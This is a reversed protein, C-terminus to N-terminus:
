WNGPETITLSLQVSCKLPEELFLFNWFCQGPRVIYIGVGSLFNAGYVRTTVNKDKGSRNLAQSTRVYRVQGGSVCHRRSRNPDESSTLIGTPPLTAPFIPIMDDTCLPLNEELIIRWLIGINWAAKLPRRINFHQLLSHVVAVLFGLQCLTNLLLQGRVPLYIFLVPVFYFWFELAPLWTALFHCAFFGFGKKYYFNVKKNYFLSLESKFCLAWLTFFFYFSIWGWTLVFIKIGKYFIDHWLITNVLCTKLFFFQKGQVVTIYDRKYMKRHICHIESVFYFTHVTNKYRFPWLQKAPSLLSPPKWTGGRAVQNQSEEPETPVRIAKKTLLVAAARPQGSVEM